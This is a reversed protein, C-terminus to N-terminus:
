VREWMRHPYFRGQPGEMRIIGGRRIKGQRYLRFMLAAVRHKAQGTVEAVDQITVSGDELAELIAQTKRGDYLPTM